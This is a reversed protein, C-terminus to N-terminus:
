PEGSLLPAWAATATISLSFMHGLIGSAIVLGFLPTRVDMPILAEAIAVPAFGKGLECIGTVIGLPTGCYKLVNSTGPNGDESVAEIDIGCVVRPLWKAFLVSGLLYGGISIIIVLEIYTAEQM